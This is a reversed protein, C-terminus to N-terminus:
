APGRFVRARSWRALSAVAFMGAFVGLALNVPEPVPALDYGIVDMVQFDVASIDNQVGSSSFANFSDNAGSAWDQPDSGNGNAFNYNKLNSTGGDISFYTNAADTLSRTGPATYRFLDYPLYDPGGGGFNGGLGPIRGMIETIEHAVLGIFDFKGSVARNNPDYTYQYGAGFTFIGDTTADSPIIGLAKAQARAVWFNASSTPDILGLSAIATTGAASPHNNNDTILDSRVTAYPFSGLLSTSSSGLTSTGPAAAVTINIQIPDNFATTFQQAAYNFANQVNIVDAPLLNAALSADWTPNIVLAGYAPVCAALTLVSAVHTFRNPTTTKM